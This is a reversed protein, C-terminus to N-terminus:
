ERRRKYINRLITYGAYLLLIGLFKSVVLVMTWNAGILTEVPESLVLIIGLLLLVIAFITKM